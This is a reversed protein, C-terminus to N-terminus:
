IHFKWLAVIALTALSIGINVKHCLTEMKKEYEMDRRVTQPNAGLRELTHRIYFPYIFYFSLAKVHARSLYSRNHALVHDIALAKSRFKMFEASQTLDPRVARLTDLVYDVRELHMPIHYSVKNHLVISFGFVGQKHHFHISQIDAFEFSVANQNKIEYVLREGHLHVRVNSTQRLVWAIYGTFAFFLVELLSGVSFAYRFQFKFLPMVFNMLVFFGSCGALAMFTYLFGTEAFRAELTRSLNKRGSFEIQPLLNIHM